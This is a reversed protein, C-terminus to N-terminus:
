FGMEEGDEHGYGLGRMEIWTNEIQKKNLEFSSNNVMSCHASDCVVDGNSEFENRM